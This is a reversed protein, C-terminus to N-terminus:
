MILMLVGIDISAEVVKPGIQKIFPFDKHVHILVNKSYFTVRYYPCRFIAKPKWIKKM